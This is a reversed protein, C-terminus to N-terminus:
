KKKAREEAFVEVLIPHVKLKKAVSETTADKKKLEALVKDKLLAQKQIKKVFKVEVLALDAIDAVSMKKRTLHLVSLIDKKILGRQLGKEIGQEVGRKVGKEIGKLFLFDQNIDFQIGMDQVKDVTIKQLNRLRSLMILQNTFKRVAYADKRIFTLRGLILELVTEYSLDERDALLGLIVEEPIDSDIFDRYSFDEISIVGFLYSLNKLRINNQMKAKGRGLYLVLQLIPKNLRRYLFGFYFLMRANMRLNDSTEFELHLIAGDPYEKNFIKLLFDPEKELTVQMKLRELKELRDFQLRFIKRLIFPILNGCNEKIIKDIYNAETKDTERNGQDNSMKRLNPTIYNKNFGFYRFFRFHM